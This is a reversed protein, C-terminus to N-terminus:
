ALEPLLDPQIGGIVPLVYDRAYLSDELSKRNVKIPSGSWSSLWRQRDPGKGGHYLDHSRVWGTLEDQAILLGHARGLLPVLAEWTLDTSYFEDRIPRQPKPDREKTPTSEWVALDKLYKALREKHDKDARREQEDVAAMAAEQAPSKVSGPVAVVALWL